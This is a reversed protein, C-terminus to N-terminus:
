GTIQPIMERIAEIRATPAPHTSLFAPPGSGRDAAMGQWLRVAAHPDYGAAAMTRLGLRDAEM